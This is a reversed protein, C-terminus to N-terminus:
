DNGKEKMTKKAVAMILRLTYELAIDDSLSCPEGAIMITPEGVANVLHHYKSLWDRTIWAKSDRLWYRIQDDFGNGNIKTREVQNRANSPLNSSSRERGLLAYLPDRNRETLAQRAVIMLRSLQSNSMKNPELNISGVRSLLLEDLRQRLLREAMDAAMKRSELRGSELSFSVQNSGIDSDPLRAQFQGCEELWNVVIRGFGDVKREGIGSAELNQIRQPDLEVKDFVFVSGAALAPVQPLPLGWKRNFGGVILSSGYIGGQKFKLKKREVDLSESLLQRLVEPDAVPQGWENRVITDSLLTITLSKDRETREELDIGVENWNNDKSTDDSTLLQIRVHGYGASQSGGLWVDLWREESQSLKLLSEIISKDTDCGCLVVAQFTQGAAIADYRFLAGSGEIGRGRKRDRQNHINLQRKERYLVVSGDRDDVICFKEDLPKPSIDQDPQEYSFDYVTMERSETIEDGKEKFWSRPVPLTRKRECSDSLYANLYRTTGDFFLRRVDPFRQIDLIDDTGQLRQRQLYRGILLGRIISGPIYPHSVDSNPEGQCSTALVPQQTHLLFTVVKM